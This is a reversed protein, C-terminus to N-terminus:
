DSKLRKQFYDRWSTPLAEVEIARQLLGLDQNKNVYLRTIDAVTVQHKDRDILRLKDDAKVEGEKLVRLYFGTLQSDLFRKVMDPRNFRLGLKYCPMRPQTVILETSGLSFRDGINVDSELFGSITLNEGFIGYTFDVERLENQWYQYHEVPYAYVAKDIGGHVTLDAQADGNFNLADLQISRTAPAKFIGTIVTRGQWEVERPLGVNLSILRASTM